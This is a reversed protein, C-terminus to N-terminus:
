EGSYPQGLVKGVEAISNGFRGLPDNGAYPRGHELQLKLEINEEVLREMRAKQQAYVAREGSSRGAWYAAYCIMAALAFFILNLIM